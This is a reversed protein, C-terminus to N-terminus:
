QAPDPWITGWDAAMDIVVWGMEPALDLARDLKGIQSDRDYAWERTADTHHVIVGLKAGCCATGWQLMELDGDSNGAVFVPRQGIHRAIGVPKGPGDDVFAIGTGRMVQPEGDVMQFETTGESGVVQPAPIGYAEDSFARIFETGGGSVIFTQYDNARLLELLEIMPQYVMDTFLRDKEPHRATALWEAAQLQFAEVTMGGGTAGLLEVLGEKGGAIIAQVDGEAAAKLVPSSAWAPDAAALEKARDLIFFFQFYIPQESWLTGDNDFTAIRDAPEVYKSSAPDTTAEVFGLITTKTQGDNWSPLPDDQAWLPSATLLLVFSLRLM